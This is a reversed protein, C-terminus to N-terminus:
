GVHSCMQPSKRTSHPHSPTPRPNPTSTSTGPSSHVEVGATTLSRPRHRVRGAARQRKITTILTIQQDTQLAEMQNSGSPALATQREVYLGTIATSAARTTPHNSPTVPTHHHLHDVRGPGPDRRPNPPKFSAPHPAFAGAPDHSEDLLVVRHTSGPRTQPARAIREAIWSNRKSPAVMAPNAGCSAVVHFVTHEWILGHRCAADSGRGNRLPEPRPDRHSAYPVVLVSAAPAWTFEGADHVVRPFSWGVARKLPGPGPLTQCRAHSSAPWARFLSGRPLVFRPSSGKWPCCSCWRKALELVCGADEVGKVDDLESAVGKILHAVADLLVRGSVASALVIGEILDLKEQAGRTIPERLTLLFAEVCGERCILCVDTDFNGVVAGLLHAVDEM